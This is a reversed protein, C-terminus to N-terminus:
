HFDPHPKRDWYPPLEQLIREPDVAQVGVLEIGERLNLYGVRHISLKEGAKRTDRFLNLRPIWLSNSLLEAAPNLDRASIPVVTWKGFSNKLHYTCTLCVQCLTINAHSEQELIIVQTDIEGGKRACWLCVLSKTIYNAKQSAIAPPSGRRPGKHEAKEPTLAVKEKSSRPM